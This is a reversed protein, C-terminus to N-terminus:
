SDTHQSAAPPAPWPNGRVFDGVAMRRSGARQVTKLSLAGKGCAVLLESSGSALITGPCGRGTCAEAEWIKLTVGGVVAEAGPAPNFARVKREIQEADSTWDIAAETKSIKAAYTARAEDQSRPQLRDLSELAEIVAKAGLRALKETLTGTTDRAEIPLSRELLVPGTDLGADMRMICIGTTTDGALIARHVPAAGRWRPLLSAHINICGRPPLDLIARPLLLGYAAVVLVDPRASRLLDVAAENRLSAPKEVRLGLEQARAGVESAALRMGRGAPRDPQTLVLPIEYGADAIAELAPRAFAPTGAFAVRM